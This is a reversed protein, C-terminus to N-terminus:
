KAFVHNGIQTLIQRSRIWQNTATVPNYYYLAGN